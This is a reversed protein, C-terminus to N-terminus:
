EALSLLPSRIMPSAAGAFGEALGGIIRGRSWQCQINGYISTIGILTTRLSLACSQLFFLLQHLASACASSYTILRAELYVLAPAQETCRATGGGTHTLSLSSLYTDEASSRVSGTAM